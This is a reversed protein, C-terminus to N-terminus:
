EKVRLFARAMRLGEVQNEVFQYLKKYNKKAHILFASAQGYIAPLKLKNIYYYGDLYTKIGGSVIIQRCFINNNHDYIENIIDVMRGVDIGVNLFPEYQSHDGAKRRQM